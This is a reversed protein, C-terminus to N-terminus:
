YLVKESLQSRLNVFIATTCASFLCFIGSGSTAEYYGLLACNEDIERCFDSIMLLVDKGGAEWKVKLGLNFCPDDRYRYTIQDSHLHPLMNRWFTPTERCDYM